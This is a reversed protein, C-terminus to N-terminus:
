ISLLGLYVVHFLPSIWDEGSPCPLPHTNPVVTWLLIIFSAKRFLYSTTDPIISFSSYFSATSFFGILHLLNERVLNEMNYNVM